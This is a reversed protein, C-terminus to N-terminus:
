VMDTVCVMLLGLEEGEEAISSSIGETTAGSHGLLVPPVDGAQGLSSDVQIGPYVTAPFYTSSLSSNRLHELDLNWSGM